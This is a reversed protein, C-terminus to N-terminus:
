EIGVHDLDVLEQKFKLWDNVFDRCEKPNGMIDQLFERSTVSPFNKKGLYDAYSSWRYNEIFKAAKNVSTIGKEKWGPFILAVPNTHIYVFVTRLQDDNAIHVEKFRGQFLHGTREYKRNFYRTYGGFKQIFKSIGKDKLQKLLLHIHNPM